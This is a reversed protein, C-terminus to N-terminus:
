RLYRLAPDDTLDDHEVAMVALLGRKVAQGMAHWMPLYPRISEWTAVRGNLRSALRESLVILVAVDALGNQMFFCSKSVAHHVRSEEGSELKVVCRLSEVASLYCDFDGAEHRLFAGFDEDDLGVRHGGPYEQMLLNGSSRVLSALGSELDERGGMERMAATLNALFQRKIPAVCNGALRKSPNGLADM